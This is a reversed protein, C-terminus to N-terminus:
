LGAMLETIKKYINDRKLLKKGDAFGQQESLLQIKALWAAQQIGSAKMYELLAMSFYGSNLFGALVMKQIDPIGAHRALVNAVPAATDRWEANLKRIFALIVKRGDTDTNYWDLLLRELVDAKDQTSYSPSWDHEAGYEGYETMDVLKQVDQSNAM